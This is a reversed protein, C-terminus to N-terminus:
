NRQEWSEREALKKFADIIGSSFFDKGVEGGINLVHEKVKENANEPCVAYSSLAPQMMAIDPVSDGAVVVEQPKIGTIKLSEALALGKHMFKPVVGLSGNRCSVDLYENSPYNEAVYDHFKDKETDVVLFSFLHGYSHIKKAKFRSCIDQILPHLACDNIESLHQEMRSVFPQVMEPSNDTYTALRLGYEAMFFAPKSKVKSAKVLDWQGDADWTTNIAWLCGNDHLYDLFESFPDPFRAYHDYGGGLATDDLDTVFLKPFM